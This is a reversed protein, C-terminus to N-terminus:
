GARAPHRTQQFTDLHKDETQNHPGSPLRPLGGGEGVAQPSSVTMYIPSQSIYAQGEQGGGVEDAGELGGSSVESPQRTGVVVSTPGPGLGHESCGLSQRGMQGKHQSSAEQTKDLPPSTRMVNRAKEELKKLLEKSGSGSRNGVKEEGQESPRVILKM